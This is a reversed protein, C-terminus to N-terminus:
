LNIVEAIRLLSVPPFRELERAATMNVIISFRSLSEAPISGPDRREVLIQRAKFATFQGIGYLSSALAVVGLEQRVITETASFIPIRHEIATLAVTRANLSALFTDPGIYLFEAGGRAVTRIAGAIGAPDPAGNATLPVPEAVLTIGRTDLEAKLAATTLVSNRELPNYVTGVTRCPQYNLLTNIQTRIPAIHITGTVNRGPLRLDRVIKADVPSAVFTFVVPIDRIFRSPDDDYAGVLGVTQPTGWSYILDPRVDRIEEVIGPIKSADGNTNRITYRVPLGSSALHSRFGDESTGEGRGLVMFIHVPRQPDALRSDAATAPGGCLSAGALGALLHRRSLM